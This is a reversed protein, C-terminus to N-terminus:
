YHIRWLRLPSKAPLAVPELWAPIDNRALQDYFGGPNRARYVTSESM